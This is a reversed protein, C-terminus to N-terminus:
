PATAGPLPVTPFIMDLEQIPLRAEGSKSGEQKDIYFQPVQPAIPPVPKPAPALVAAVNPQAQQKKGEQAQQQRQQQKAAVYQDAENTFRESMIQSRSKLEKTEDDRYGAFLDHVFRSYGPDEEMLSIMEDIRRADKEKVSKFIKKFAKKFEVKSVCKNKYFCSDVGCDCGYKVINICPQYESFQPLCNDLCTNGFSRYNGNVKECTNFNHLSQSHVQNQALFLVLFTFIAIFGFNFSINQSAKVM